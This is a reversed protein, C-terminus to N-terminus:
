LSFFEGNFVIFDYCINYIFHEVKDLIMPDMDHMGNVGRLYSFDPQNAVVVCVIPSKLPAPPSFLAKDIPYFHVRNFLDGPRHSPM